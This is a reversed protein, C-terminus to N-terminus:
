REPEPPRWDDAPRYECFGDAGKVPCGWFAYAKGTKKSVGQKHEWPQRHVPCVDGAATPRAPRAAAPPPAAAADASVLALTISQGCNPCHLPIM